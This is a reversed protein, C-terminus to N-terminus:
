SSPESRDSTLSRSATRAHLRLSQPWIPGVSAIGHGNLADRVLRERDIAINSRAASTRRDCHTRDAHQVRDRYQYRRTFTFMAVNNSAQLSDLADAGVEYLM